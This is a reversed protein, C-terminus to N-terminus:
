SFRTGSQYAAKLDPNAELIAHRRSRGLKNLLKLSRPQCMKVFRAFGAEFQPTDWVPRHILSGVLDLCVDLMEPYARMVSANYFPHNRIRYAQTLADQVVSRDFIDQLQIFQDIVKGMRKADSRTATKILVFLLYNTNSATFAKIIAEKIEHPDVATLDLIKERLERSPRGDSVLLRVIWAVLDDASTPARGLIELLDNSAQGIALIPEVIKAKVAMKVRVSYDNYHDLLVSIITVHRTMIYAIIDLLREAIDNESRSSEKEDDEKEEEKTSVHEIATNGNINDEMVVDEEEEKKAERTTEDSQTNDSIPKYSSKNLRDVLLAIDDDALPDLCRIIERNIDYRIESIDQDLSIMWLQRFAVSMSKGQTLSWRRLCPMLMYCWEYERCFTQLLSGAENTLEPIGLIFQSIIIDPLPKHKFLLELQLCLSRSYAEKDEYWESYLWYLAHQHWDNFGSAFFEALHKRSVDLDEETNITALVADSEQRQSMLFATCRDLAVRWNLKPPVVLSVLRGYLIRDITSKIFIMCHEHSMGIIPRPTEPITEVISTDVKSTGNDNSIEENSGTNDSTTTAITTATTTSLTTRSSNRKRKKTSTQQTADIVRLRGYFRSDKRRPNKGTIDSSTANDSAVDNRTIDPLGRRKGEEWLILTHIIASGDLAKISKVILARAKQDARLVACRFLSAFGALITRRASQRQLSSWHTPMHRAIHLLSEVAPICTEMPFTCMCIYLQHCWYPLLSSDCIFALLEDFILGGYQECKAVKFRPHDNRCLAVSVDRPYQRTRIPASRATFIQVFLTIFRTVVLQMRVNKSRIHSKALEYVQHIIQWLKGHDDDMICCRLFAHPVLKHACGIAESAIDVLATDALKSILNQLHTFGKKLETTALREAEKNFLTLWWSSVERAQIWRVCLPIVHETITRGRKATDNINVITETFETLEHPEPISDASEMRVLLSLSRRYRREDDTSTDVVIDVHFPPDSDPWLQKM